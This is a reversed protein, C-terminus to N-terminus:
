LEEENEDKDENEKLWKEYEERVGPKAFFREVAHLTARALIELRDEPINELKISVDEGSIIKLTKM